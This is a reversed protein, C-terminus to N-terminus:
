RVTLTLAAGNQQFIRLNGSVAPGGFIIFDTTYGGGDVLYPFLLEQPAAAAEDIAPTATILFEGRENTRTRLGAVYMASISSVRLVGKFPKPFGSFIQDIFRVLHGNGPITLTQPPLDPLFSGSLDTIELSASVPAPSGSALVLGTNIAGAVPGSTEIYIRFATAPSSSVGAETVVVGAPKYSFLSQSRPPPGERPTIQISGSRV